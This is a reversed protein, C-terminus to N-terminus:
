RCKRIEYGNTVRKLCREHEIQWDALGEITAGLMALFMFAGLCTVIFVFAVTALRAFM